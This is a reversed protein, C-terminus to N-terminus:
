RGSARPSVARERLAPRGTPSTEDFADHLALRREILARALAAAVWADAFSNCRFVHRRQGTTTVILDRERTAVDRVSGWAVSLSAGGVVRLRECTLFLKASAEGADTAASVPALYHCTEGSVGKHQTVVVPLGDRGMSELAELVMARGHLMERELELDDPAWGADDLRRTLARVEESTGTEAVRRAELRFARRSEAEQLSASRGAFGGLLRRM